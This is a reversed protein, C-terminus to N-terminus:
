SMQEKLQKIRAENEAALRTLLRSIERIPLKEAAARFFRASTEEFNVALEIRSPADEVQYATDSLGTISELIMEAVGERKARELRKLRKRSGRLLEKQLEEPIESESEGYLTVGRKELEMAFTMIAGFTGLEM